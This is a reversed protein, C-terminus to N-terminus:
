LISPPFPNQFDMKGEPFILFASAMGSLKNTWGTRTSVECGGWIIKSTSLFNQEHRQLDEKTATNKDQRGKSESFLKNGKEKCCDHINSAMLRNVLIKDLNYLM